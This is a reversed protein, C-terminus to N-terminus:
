SDFTVFNRNLPLYSACSTLQRLPKRIRLRPRLSSEGRALHHLKSNGKVTSHSDSDLSSNPQVGSLLPPLENLEFGVCAALSCGVWYGIPFGEDEAEM